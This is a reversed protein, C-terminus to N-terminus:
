LFATAGFSLLRATASPLRKQTLILRPLSASAAVIRTIPDWNMEVLNKGKSPIDKTPATITSM